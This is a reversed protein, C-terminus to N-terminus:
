KTTALYGLGGVVMVPTLFGLWEMMGMDGMVWVKSMVSEFSKWSDLGMMFESTEGGPCMVLEQYSGGRRRKTEHRLLPNRGLRVESHMEELTDANPKNAPSFPIVPVNNTTLMPTAPDPPYNCTEYSLLLGPVEYASTIGPTVTKYDRTRQLNQQEVALNREVCATTDTIYDGIDGLGMLEHLRDELQITSGCSLERGSANCMIPM